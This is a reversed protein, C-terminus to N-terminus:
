PSAVCRHHAEVAAADTADAFRLECDLQVELDANDYPLSVTIDGNWGTAYVHCPMGIPTITDDTADNTVSTVLAYAEPERGCAVSHVLNDVTTANPHAYDRATRARGPDALDGVQIVAIMPTIAKLLAPTTGNISGHHGVVYVDADLLEPQNAYAALLQAIAPAELDGTFLISSAGYDIRIVLSHNNPDKFDEATGMVNKKSQGWLVRIKPDVDACQIADIAPGTYGGQQPKTSFAVIRHHTAGKNTAVWDGFAKQAQQWTTANTQLLGDDVLNKVDYVPVITGTLGLTSLSGLHDEHPHTLYVTTLTGQLDPRQHAFFDDLHTRLVGTFGPGRGADILIAGCKGPFEVIAAAGQGVNIFHVQMPPPVTAAHAAVADRQRSIRKVAPPAAEPAVKRASAVPVPSSVAQPAGGHACGWLVVFSASLLVFRKYQM